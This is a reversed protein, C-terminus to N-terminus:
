GRETRPEQGVKALMAHTMVKPPIRRVLTLRQAGWMEVTMAATAAMGSVAGIFLTSITREM